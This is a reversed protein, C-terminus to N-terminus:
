YSRAGIMVVILGLISDKIELSLLVEFAREVATGLSGLNGTDPM